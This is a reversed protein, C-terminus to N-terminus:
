ILSLLLLYFSNGPGGHIQRGTVREIRTTLMERVVWIILEHLAWTDLSGRLVTVKLEIVSEGWRRDCLGVGVDYKYM